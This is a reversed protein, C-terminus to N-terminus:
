RFGEDSIIPTKQNTFVEVGAESLIGEELPRPGFRGGWRMCPICYNFLMKRFIIM